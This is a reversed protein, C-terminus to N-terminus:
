CLLAIVGSFDAGFGVKEVLDFAKACEEESMRDTALSNNGPCVDPKTVRFNGISRSLCCSTGGDTMARSKALGSNEEFSVRPRGTQTSVAVESYTVYEFVVGLLLAPNVQGITFRNDMLHVAVPKLVVPSGSNGPFVLSDM